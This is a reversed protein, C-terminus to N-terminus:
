SKPPATKMEQREYVLPADRNINVFEGGKYTCMAKFVEDPLDARIFRVAGDAMIALTGPKGDHQMCVFPQMCNKEPVGEITSGGGAMWPRKFTPPVQLVMITNEPGDKIDALKTSRDYGFVGIKRAVRPNNADYEPADMGVGAIGVFHTAAVSQQVGPFRIWWTNPAYSPDLYQPILTVALALNEADDWSKQRDIHSYISGQDPGLYPLLETMWSVRKSPPYPRNARTGPISREATGRPFQGDHANAYAILAQALEHIRPQGGAMDLYGKQQLVTHRVDRNMLIRNAAAERIDITLQLITRDATQFRVTAGPPKGEAAASRNLGPLGSGAMAPGPRSRNSLLGPQAGAGGQPISPAQATGPAIGQRPPAQPMAIKGAFGAPYQAPVTGGGPSGPGPPPTNDRLTPRPAPPPPPQEDSILDVRTDLENGLTDTLGPLATWAFDQSRQMTVEESPYEVALTLYSGTRLRLSAALFSADQILTQLYLTNQSLVPLRDRAARLDVVLSVVPRRKDVRSLMRKLDPDITMFMGAAMAAEKASEKDEDGERDQPAAPQPGTAPRGGAAPPRNPVGPPAGAPPAAKPQERPRDQRRMPFRGKVKLYDQVPKLDGFIVTQDDVIRMAMTGGARLPIESVDMQFMTAFTMRGLQRLWGSPELVFYEQDLIKEKGIAAKCQLASVLQNRNLAKSSHVVCYKWDQSFNSAHLILDIDGISMGLKANLASELFGGRTLFITRGLESAMLSQFQVMCLGETDPPLMNTLQPLVQQLNVLRRAPVAAASESEVAPTPPVAAQPRPPVPPAPMVNPRPPPTAGGGFLLYGLGALAVVAVVGVGIMLMMKTSLGRPKEAAGLEEVTAVAAEEKKQGRKRKPDPAEEAEDAPQGPDEVVFRYRCKPCDIKRGILSSDRIPVWAECSPCQQKFSSTTAM